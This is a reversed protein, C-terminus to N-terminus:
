AAAEAPPRTAMAPTRWAPDATMDRRAQAQRPLCLFAEILLAALMLALFLRWTEQLLSAGSGARDDVRDFDLRDFLAAVRADALVPSRDEEAARNIAFLKDGAEYVGSQDGYSSSLTDPPGVLLKWDSTPKAPLRGAVYNRTTGLSSAGSALARQVMVYLVVGDRALSSQGAAPSTACFYVNRQDTTARALLPAGGQLTALPTHEGTLECYRTVSLQGVPLSAGSRTNALLDQDGVWTSIPAEISLEQWDDWRLGAFEADTPVQPPFFVIQGGRTLFTQLQANVDGVAPSTVTEEDALEDSSSSEDSAALQTASAVDGRAGDPLPAQWLVLSVGDWDATALQDPTLLEATAEVSMDPSIAAALELPRAADADEAVIITKRPAPRDFVFDYENDAPNEDAPLSVRGWGRSQRSDLPIAHNKLEYETGTMEVTLESRAGDIEFQLPFSQPAAGGQPQDIRLSVLLEANDGRQERRVDTVRVSRNAAPADPYALLHFRVPHPSELLSDRFVQWRGSEADWDHQRLDSLIWIETRSPRNVRIYEEAAQLMAPLDASAAVGTTQPLSKLADPSDFELPTGGSGDILVWRNSGLLSLSQVLQERGSDLKSKGNATGQQQMSPSRDLLVITTDPKGGALLGQWGSALPRAVAVILGLVALTRAALILYQRLRAYGRSMRNAALLFMMAGWRITQFRRQNILHIVIPLAIVPLAYLMIPQLFSM